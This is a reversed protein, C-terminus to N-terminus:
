YFWFYPTFNAPTIPNSGVQNFLTVPQRVCWADGVGLLIFLQLKLSLHSKFERGEAQCASARVLQAVKAFTIDKRRNKSITQEGYGTSTCM